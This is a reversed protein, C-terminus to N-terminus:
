AIKLLYIYGNGYSDAGGVALETGDPSWSLSREEISNDTLRVVDSGDSNMVYIETKGDRDYTFTFAIRKGDPSWVPFGETDGDDTLKVVNNGDADMVYIGWHGDRYSTFAIKTGDPSWAPQRDDVRDASLKTVNTGDVGVVVVQWYRKTSGPFDLDEFPISKMFVIKTGDPSYSPRYLATGLIGSENAIVYRVNKGELDMMGIGGQNTSFVMEDGSPSWSVGTTGDGAVQSRNRGDADMVYIGSVYPSGIHISTDLVTSVFAIQRGDPSWAPLGDSTGEGGSLNGLRANGGSCATGLVLIIMILILGWHLARLKMVM